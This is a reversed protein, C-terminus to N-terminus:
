YIIKQLDIIFIHILMLTKEIHVCCKGMEKQIKYNTLSQINLTYAM